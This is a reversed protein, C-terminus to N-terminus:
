PNGHRLARAVEELHAAVTPRIELLATRYAEDRAAPVLVADLRERFRELRAAAARLWADDFAGAGTDRLAALLAEDEGRIRRSEATAVPALGQRSALTSLRDTYARHEEALSRALARIGDGGARDSALRALAEVGQNEALFLELGQPDDPLAGAEALVEPPPPSPAPRRTCGVALAAWLIPGLLIPIWRRLSM